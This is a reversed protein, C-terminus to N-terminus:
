PALRVSGKDPGSVPGLQIPQAQVVTEVTSSSSSVHAALTDLMGISGAVLAMALIVGLIQGSLM